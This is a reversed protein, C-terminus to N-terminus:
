KKIEALYAKVKNDTSAMKFEERSFYKKNLQNTATM